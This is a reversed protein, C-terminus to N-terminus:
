EKKEEYRVFESIKQVIEFPFTKQHPKYWAIIAQTRDNIISSILENNDIVEKDFKINNNLLQTIIESDNLIHELGHRRIFPKTITSSKLLEIAYPINKTKFLANIATTAGHKFLYQIMEPRTASTVYINLKYIENERPLLRFIVDLTKFADSLKSQESISVLAEIYVAYSMNNFLPIVIEFIDFSACLTAINLIYEYDVNIGRRIDKMLINNFSIRDNSSVSNLLSKFHEVDNDILTILEINNEDKAKVIINYFGNFTCIKENYFTIILDYEKLQYCIDLVTNGYFRFNNEILYDIINYHKRIILISYLSNITEEPIIHTYHFLFMRLTIFAKEDPLKDIIYQMGRNLEHISKIEYTEFLNYQLYKCALEFNSNKPTYEM